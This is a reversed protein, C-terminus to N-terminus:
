FIIINWSDIEVCINMRFEHKIPFMGVITNFLSCYNSFSQVMDEVSITSSLRAYVHRYYLEKYLM